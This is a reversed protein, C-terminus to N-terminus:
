LLGLSLSPIYTILLLAIIICVAFPLARKGLQAVPIGTISGAVFLNLGFPPSVFGIALNVSVIVGLHVMNVGLVDAVPMLLPGIIVIAPGVDVIMGLLLLVLNLMLLFSFKSPFNTILFDRLAQPAGILTLVRSFALALAILVLIPAYARVTEQLTAVLDRFSISRYILLSVILSYLVALGAAETPTVVGLYIGGLIIVPTLLAWFGDLFVKLFGRSKLQEYNEAIRAKDEGRRKCYIYVYIILVAAILIGPIIGAIFLSGVSTGTGLGWLIFPISPPIIIGLGSAAVVLGCKECAGSAPSPPRRRSSFSQSIAKRV